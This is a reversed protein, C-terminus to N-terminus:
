KFKKVSLNLSYNGYKLLSDLFQDLEEHTAVSVKLLYCGHGSIRDASIVAEHGSIYTQFAPHDTTKMFVTVYGTITKGLKTQDLVVTYGRIIGLKEMRGIRNAVAQGTLHVSEGIDRLQIKANEKLLSLIRYDTEDLM